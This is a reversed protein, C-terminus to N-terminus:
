CWTTAWAVIVFSSPHFCLGNSCTESLLTDLCYLLLWHCPIWYPLILLILYLPFLLVFVFLLVILLVFLLMFHLVFPLVFLLVFLLVFPLVFMFLIPRYSHLVHRHRDRKNILWIYGRRTGCWPIFVYWVLKRKYSSLIVTSWMYVFVFIRMVFTLWSNQWHTRLFWPCLYRWHIPLIWPRVLTCSRVFWKSLINGM